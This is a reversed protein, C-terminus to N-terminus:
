VLELEAQHTGPRTQKVLDGIRYKHMDNTITINRIDFLQMTHAKQGTLLAILTVLKLSWDKLSLNQVRDM